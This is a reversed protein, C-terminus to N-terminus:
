QRLAFAFLAHGAAVAVYQRGDVRYTMPGMAVQGGLVAKWLMTGMALVFSGSGGTHGTDTSSTAYGRSVGDALDSYSITGAWGGNGVALYKNNWGVESNKLRPTACRFGFTDRRGTPNRWSREARASGKSLQELM